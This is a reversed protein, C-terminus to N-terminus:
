VTGRQGGYQSIGWVPFVGYLGEWAAVSGALPYDTGAATAPKKHPIGEFAGSRGLVPKKKQTYGLM